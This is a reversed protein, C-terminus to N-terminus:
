SEIAKIHSEQNIKNAKMLINILNMGQDLNKFIILGINTLSM